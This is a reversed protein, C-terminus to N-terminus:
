LLGSEFIKFKFFESSCIIVCLSDVIVRGNRLNFSYGCISICIRSPLSRM